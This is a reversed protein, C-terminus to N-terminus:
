GHQAIQPTWFYKVCPHAAITAFVARSCFTNPLVCAHIEYFSPPALGFLALIVGGRRTSGIKLEQHPFHKRNRKMRHLVKPIGPFKVSKETFPTRMVYGDGDLMWGDPSLPYSFRLGDVGGAGMLTLPSDDEADSPSLPAIWMKLCKILMDVFDQHTRLPGFRRIDRKFKANMQEAPQQSAPPLPQFEHTSGVGSWWDATLIKGDASVKEDVTKSSM